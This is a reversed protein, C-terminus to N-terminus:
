SEKQKPQLENALQQEVDVTGCGVGTMRRFAFRLFCFSSKERRVVVDYNERTRIAFCRHVKWSPAWDLEQVCLNSLEQRIALKDLGGFRGPVGKSHHQGM